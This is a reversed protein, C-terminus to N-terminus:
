LGYRYLYLKQHQRLGRANECKAKKLSFTGSLRTRLEDSLDQNDWWFHRSHYNTQYFTPVLRYFHAHARLQVTDGLLPFNLEGNGDIKLQGADSGPWGRRLRCTM